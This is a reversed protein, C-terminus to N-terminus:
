QAEVMITLVGVHAGLETANENIDDASVDVQLSANNAAGGDCHDNASFSNTRNGLLEGPSIEVTGAGDDWRVAFPIESNNNRLVYAGGDGEGSITVAYEDGSARFVCLNDEGTMDSDGDFTGLHIDDLQSLRISDEIGLELDVWGSRRTRGQGENEVELAFRNDYFGPGAAAVDGASFSIRLRANNGGPCDAEAGSFIDDTQIDPELTEVQGSQLDQWEMTAPISSEGSSLEVPSEALVRYDIVAGGQAGQTSEVCFDQEHVIDGGDWDLTASPNRPSLDVRAAAPGAALLMLVSLVYVLLERSHPRSGHPCIEESGTWRHQRRKGTSSSM